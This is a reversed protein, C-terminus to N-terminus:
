LFSSHTLIQNPAKPPKQKTKKCKAKNEQIKEETTFQVEKKVNFTQRKSMQKKQRAECTYVMLTETNNQREGQQDKRKNATKTQTKYKVM